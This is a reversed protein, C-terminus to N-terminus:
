RRRIVGVSVVFGIVAVVIASLALNRALRATASAQNSRDVVADIRPALRDLRGALEARSPDQLPFEIEASGVVCDFTKESCTFTEDIKQGRFTGTFRFAYTGPRTPIMAAIFVGRQEEAPRLSLPGLKQDGFIAEVKIADGIDEIPKGTADHLTLVIGNRLGAYVPEELWGVEWRLSDVSRREHATVRGPLGVGAALMILLVCLRRVRITDVFM